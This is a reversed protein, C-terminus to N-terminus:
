EQDLGILRICQLNFTFSFMRLNYVTVKNQESQCSHDGLLVKLLLIIYFTGDDAYLNGGKGYLIDHGAIINRFCFCQGGQNM